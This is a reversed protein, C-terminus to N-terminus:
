HDLFNLFGGEQSFIKNTTRKLLMGRNKLYKILNIIDKIENHTLTIVSGNSSIFKKNLKNIEKNVFFRTANRNSEPARKILQQTGTKM